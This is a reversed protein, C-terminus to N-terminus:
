IGRATRLGHRVEHVIAAIKKLPLKKLGKRRILTSSYDYIESGRERRGAQSALHEVFDLVQARKMAPLQDLKEIIAKRVAQSDKKM